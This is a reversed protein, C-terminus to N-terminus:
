EQGLRSRGSSHWNPTYWDLWAQHRESYHREYYVDEIGNLSTIGLKYGPCYYTLDYGLFRFEDFLIPDLQIKLQQLDDQTLELKDIVTKEVVVNKDITYKLNGYVDNSINCKYAKISVGKGLHYAINLEIFAM